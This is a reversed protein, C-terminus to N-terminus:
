VYLFVVNSIFSECGVNMGNTCLFSSVDVSRRSLFRDLYTVSLYATQVGFGLVERTQVFCRWSKVKGVNGGCFCLVFKFILLTQFVFESFTTSEM